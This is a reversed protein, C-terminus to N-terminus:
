IVMGFPDGSSDDPESKQIPITRLEGWNFVLSIRFFARIEYVTAEDHPSPTRKIEKQNNDAGSGFSKPPLFVWTFCIPTWIKEVSNSKSGRQFVSPSAVASNQARHSNHWFESTTFLFTFVFNESLRIALEEFSKPFVDKCVPLPESIGNGVM